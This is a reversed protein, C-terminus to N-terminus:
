LRAISFISRCTARSTLAIFRRSTIVFAISPCSHQSDVASMKPPPGKPPHVRGSSGILRPSIPSATRFRVPSRSCLFYRVRRYRIGCSAQVAPGDRWGARARRPSSSAAGLAPTHALHRDASGKLTQRALVEAARAQKKKKKL